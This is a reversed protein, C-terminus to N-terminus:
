QEAAALGTNVGPGTLTLLMLVLLLFRTNVM